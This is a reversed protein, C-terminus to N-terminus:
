YPLAPPESPVFSIFREPVWRCVLRVDSTENEVLAVYAWGSQTPPAILLAYYTELSPEHVWIHRVVRPAKPITHNAPRKVM